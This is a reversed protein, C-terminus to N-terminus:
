VEAQKRADDILAKTVKYVVTDGSLNEVGPLQAGADIRKKLETKNIATTTRICEHWGRQRLAYELSTPDNVKISTVTQLGFEGFSTRIKRPNQFLKPNQDVFRTLRLEDRSIAASLEANAKAHRDKIAAIQRELKADEYERRIINQALEDFVSIAAKTDTVDTRLDAVRRM